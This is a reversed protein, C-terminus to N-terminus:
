SERKGQDRETLGSSRPSPAVPDTASSWAATALGSDSDPSATPFGGGSSASVSRSDPVRARTSCASRRPLDRPTVSDSEGRSPFPGEASGGRRCGEAPSCQLEVTRLRTASAPEVGSDPVGAAGSPFASASSVEVAPRAPSIRSRTFRRRCSASSRRLRDAPGGGAEGLSIAASGCRPTVPAGLTSSRSVGVSSAPSQSAGQTSSSPASREAWSARGARRGERSAANM